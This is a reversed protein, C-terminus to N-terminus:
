HKQIEARRDALIQEKQRELLIRIREDEMEPSSKRKQQSSLECVPRVTSTHAFFSQVPLLREEHSHYAQRRDAPEEREQTFLPSSLARGIADDSIESDHLYSPRTDSSAEQIFTETTESFHYDDFFNLEYGTLPANNVLPCVSQQTSSRPPPNPQTSKALKKTDHGFSCSDGKFCQGNTEWQWCDGLIRQVRQKTGQNKVVASTECNGNRIGFNRNRLDQEISRKVM